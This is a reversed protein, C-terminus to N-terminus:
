HYYWDRRGVLYRWERVWCQSRTECDSKWPQQQITIHYCHHHHRLFNSVKWQCLCWLRRDAFCLMIPSQNPKPSTAQVVRKKYLVTRFDHRGQSGCHLAKHQSRYKLHSFRTVSKIFWSRKERKVSIRKLNKRLVYKHSEQWSQFLNRLSVMQNCSCIQALQSLWKWSQYVM